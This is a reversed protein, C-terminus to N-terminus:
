KKPKIPRQPPKWGYKQSLINRITSPAPNVNLTTQINEEKCFQAMKEKINNVSPQLGQEYGNLFLRNAEKHILAIAAQQEEETKTTKKRRITPKWAHLYGANKLEKNVEEVGVYMTKFGSLKSPAKVPTGEADTLPLPDKNRLAATILIETIEDAKTGDVNAWQPKKQPVIALKKQHEKLAALLQDVTGNDGYIDLGVQLIPYPKPDKPPKSDSM